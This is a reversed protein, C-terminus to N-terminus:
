YTGADITTVAEWQSSSGNLQLLSDAAPTTITVDLLDNLVTIGSIGAASARIRTWGAALGNCLILDGNEFSVGPSEPINSGPGGGPTNVIFYIGAKADTASGLNDGISYGASIGLPTVGNIFGTSADITGSYRLNQQALRGFSVPLWSNGNWMHLASTSEQLWLMGIHSETAAISPIVEQVYAISYDSLKENSITRDTIYSAGFTGSIIKSTSLSPIDSEQLPLSGTVHGNQDFNLKIGSGAGVTNVHTIEGLSDVSLSTTDPRVVGVASATAVPLDAPTIVSGSTVLGKSDYNVLQKTGTNAVVTNDISLVQGNLVLGNGNVAVAGRASSALPLDNSVITRANVAGASGTPGALFQAAATTDDISASVAASHNAIVVETNVLGSNSGTVNLIGSTLSWVTGDWIYTKIEATSNDIAIQGIFDGTAPLATVVVASSSDALKAATVSSDALETTGISGAATTFNVKAGPISGNALLTIGDLILNSATIKKTESASLDAIPLVDAAQLESSGLEPLDSIRLDAM